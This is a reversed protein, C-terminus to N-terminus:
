GVRARSPEPHRTEGAVCARDVRASLDAGVCRDTSALHHATGKTTVRVYGADGDLAKFSKVNWSSGKTLESGNELIVTSQNPDALSAYDANSVVFVTYDDPNLNRNQAHYHVYRAFVWNIVCLTGITLLVM